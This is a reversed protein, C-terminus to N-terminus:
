RVGFEVLFDKFLEILVPVADLPSAVAGLYRITNSILGSDVVVTEALTNTQQLLEVAIKARGFLKGTAAIAVSHLPGAGIITASGLAGLLKAM